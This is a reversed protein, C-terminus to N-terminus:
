FEAIRAKLLKCDSDNGFKCGEAISEFKEYIEINKEYNEFGLARCGDDNGLKCARSYGDYADYVAFEVGQAHEYVYGLAYCGLANKMYCSADFAKHASALDREAGLGEHM